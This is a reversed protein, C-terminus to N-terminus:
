AALRDHDVAWRNADGKAAFGEKVREKDSNRIVAWKLKPGSWKVTFNSSLVEPGDVNKFKVERLLQVKAFGTGVSTVILEAFWTENDCLIDITDMVRLKRAVHVWYEPELITKLNAEADVVATYRTRFHEGAQLRNPALTAM